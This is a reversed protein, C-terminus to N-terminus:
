EFLRPQHPADAVSQVQGSALQTVLLEGGRVEQASKVIQGTRKLRTLSYGRQLVGQPSLAALQRRMAEVRVSQRAALESTLHRLRQALHDMRQARMAIQARPQLAALRGACRELRRRAQELPLGAALRLQRQRDDLWQRRTNVMDGPRRFLEHRSIATLRGAADAAAQRLARRLRVLLMELQGPVNKWAAVAVQAAETPTHAHYDAVLDAISVDVEHGIGTIIPIPCAALARAVVEENFAWLDELSGGGRGLLLVDARGAKMRGAYALAKAIKEGAGQGQVPVALLFVQLWPFRGLVKLMDQLAATDAGTIIGIRRPYTPIPKKRGAAFLGEAQLKEHLQRFALELAGQGLPRLQSVYFQYRGRQPYIAVKGAALLQMGDHPTFKLQAADSRFMVCDICAASDKLTFYAHGSGGHMKFNSTEGQVWLSAPFQSKIAQEIRLTLQTISLPADAAADRAPTAAAEKVAKGHLRRRLDFFSNEAM